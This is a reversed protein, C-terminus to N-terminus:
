WFGNGEPPLVVGKKTLEARSDGQHPSIHLIGGGGGVEQLILIQWKRDLM